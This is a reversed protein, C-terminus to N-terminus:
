LPELALRKAVQQLVDTCGLQIRWRALSDARTQGKCLIGIPLNLISALKILRFSSYTALSSGVVLVSSSQRVMEEAQTSISKRINEGFFVVQPKVKRSACTTCPPIDFDMYSLNDPLEVDGDPNVKQNKGLLEVWSSNHAVLRHQYDDRSATSRCELCEIQQLSGHLELITHEFSASAIGHLGDVNQTIIHKILGKETLAALIHHTANPKAKRMEPWGLFGRAWYRKRFTESSAM